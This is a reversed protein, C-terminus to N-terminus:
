EFPTPVADLTFSFISGHGYRSQVDLKRKHAELIHKVIALGLGTGGQQRSRSKDVRYFRETLRPLHDEAIGIGDDVVSVKVQDPPLNVAVVEVTNGDESYKIGNEVLNVLVQRIRGEDALVYPLGPLMRQALTIQQQKAQLELGTIVDQVLSGLDFAEMNMKLAGTEIRSIESLDNVLANLRRAHSLTKEIFSRNVKEDELAGDLLTESFGQIAFIPTKLEHSVNGLFERRYNEMKKLGEFEQQMAGSTRRIHRILHDLEDGRSAPEISPLTDFERKRLLGLMHNARKLRLSILFHAVGLTGAGTIVSIGLAAAWTTWGAWVALIAAMMACLLSGMAIKLALTNPMPM